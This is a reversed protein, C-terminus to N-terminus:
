PLRRVWDAAGGSGSTARARMGEPSLVLTIRGHKSTESYLLDFTRDATRTVELLGGGTM